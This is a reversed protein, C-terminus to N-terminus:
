KANKDRGRALNAIQEPTYEDPNDGADDLWQQIQEDDAPQPM